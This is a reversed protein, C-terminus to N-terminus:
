EIDTAPKSRANSLPSAHLAHLPRATTGNGKRHDRQEDAQEARKAQAPQRQLKKRVDVTGLDGDLARPPRGRGLFHLRFEELRELVHQLAHRADLFDFAVCVGASGLDIQSERESRVHLIREHFDDPAEITQTRQRPVRITRDHGEAATVAVRVFREGPEEDLLEGSSRARDLRLPAKDLVRHPGPELCDRAYGRDIDVRTRRIIDPDGYIKRM